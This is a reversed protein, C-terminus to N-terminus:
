GKVEGVLEPILLRITDEFSHKSLSINTIDYDCGQKYGDLPIDWEREFCSLYAKLANVEAIVKDYKLIVETATIKNYTDSM